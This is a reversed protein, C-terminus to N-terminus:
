IRYPKVKDNEFGVFYFFSFKGMRNTKRLHRLVKVIERNAYEVQGNAEPHRPFIFRVWTGYLDITAKTINAIFQRGNDTIIVEPVGHRSFVEQLFKIVDSTNITRTAKAEIWKTFYDILVIIFRNGKKTETLLGVIDLGVRVVKPVPSPRYCQCKFCTKVVTEVNSKMGPWYYIEKLQSLIKAVGEHGVLHAKVV